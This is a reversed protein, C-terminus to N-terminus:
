WCTNNLMLLKDSDTLIYDFVDEIWVELGKRDIKELDEARRIWDVSTWYCIALIGLLVLIYDGKRYLRFGRFDINQKM